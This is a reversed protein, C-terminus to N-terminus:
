AAGDHGERGLDGASLVELREEMNEIMVQLTDRTQPDTATALQRRCLAIRLTLDERTEQSM